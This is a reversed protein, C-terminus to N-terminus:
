SRVQKVLHFDKIGIFIRGFVNVKESGCACTTRSASLEHSTQDIVNGVLIFSGWVTVKVIIAQRVFVTEIFISLM